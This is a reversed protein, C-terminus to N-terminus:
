QKKQFYITDLSFLKNNNEDFVSLLHNNKIIMKEEVFEEGTLVDAKEKPSFFSNYSAQVDLNIYSFVLGFWALFFISATFFNRM